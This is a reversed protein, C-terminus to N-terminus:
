ECLGRNQVYRVAGHHTEVVGSATREVRVLSQDRGRMGVPAVLVGGLPLASLWDAPLAEVAFTVVVKAFGDWANASRMADANVVQVNPYEVLLERARRFLADDIEFTKVRGREVIRAALAAGYGSGTGLEVLSDGAQLGLLRFSLLYAHPASITALGETDLALPVDEYARAEHGAAVFRERPVSKMAALQRPDFPGLTADITAILRAREAEISQPDRHLSM